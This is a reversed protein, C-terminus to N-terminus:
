WMGPQSDRRRPWTWVARLSRPSVWCMVARSRWSSLRLVLASRWRARKAWAWDAGANVSASPRAVSDLPWSAWPRWGM